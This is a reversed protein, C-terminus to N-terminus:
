RLIRVMPLVTLLRISASDTLDLDSCFDIAAESSDSGDYGVLLRWLHCELAPLAPEDGDSEQEPKRVILVSQKASQLVQRSVSGVLFSKFGSLGHSGVVVIDAAFEEAAAV